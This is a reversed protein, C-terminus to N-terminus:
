PEQIENIYAHMQHWIEVKTQDRTPNDLPFFGGLGDPRYTRWVLSYLIEEVREAKVGVLPDSAKHLRLHELLKWAWMSALGGANFELRRSLAILVELVSVIKDFNYRRGNLFEVRLDRADQIRNDDKPVIWVFETEYMRWFLDNYTNNNRQPIDIQSILWLFYDHNIKQSV